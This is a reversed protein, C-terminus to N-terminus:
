GTVRWAPLELHHLGVGDFVLEPEGRARLVIGQDLWELEDHGTITTGPPLFVVFDARQEDRDTLEETTVAYDVRANVTVDAGADHELPKNGFRDATTAPTFHRITVRHILLTDISM